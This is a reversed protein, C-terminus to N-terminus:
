PEVTEAVLLLRPQGSARHLSVHHGGRHIFWGAFATKLFGEVDDLSFTPNFGRAMSKVATQEDTTLGDLSELTTATLALQKFTM